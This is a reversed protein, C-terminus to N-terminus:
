LIVEVYKLRLKEVKGAADYVSKQIEQLYGQVQCVDADSVLTEPHSSYRYANLVRQVSVDLNQEDWRKYRYISFLVAASQELRVWLDPDSQRGQRQKLIMQRRLFLGVALLLCAVLGVALVILLIRIIWLLIHSTQVADPADPDLEEVEEEEQNQQSDTSASQKTEQQVGTLESYYGPTVEVPLWGVGDKYIEVWAHANKALVDVHYRGDPSVATDEGDAVYGEVYRAPIDMSRYMMVAKSSYDTTNWSGEKQAQDVLNERVSKTLTVLNGQDATKIQKRTEQKQRDSVQLYYSHVFKRYDEEAIRYEGTERSVDVGQSLWTEKTYSLMADQSLANVQASYTNDEAEASSSGPMNVDQNSDGLKMLDDFTIGYPVYTYKRFASTNQVTIHVETDHVVAGSVQDAMQIYRSLQALPHFHHTQYGKIMGEYKDSYSKGELATWCGNKWVSGTYGKLYLTVPKTMEVKLRVEESDNVKGSVRGQPSDTTGYRSRESRAIAYEKWRSMTANPRFTVNRFYLVSVIGLILGLGLVTWAYVRDDSLKMQSYAFTGVVSIVASAVVLSSISLQFFISGGIVPLWCFLLLVPHQRHIMLGLYLTICACLWAFFVSAGLTVNEYFSSDFYDYALGTVYNYRVLIRNLFDLGGARWASYWVAAVFVAAVLFGGLGMLLRRGRGSLVFLFLSVLLVSLVMPVYTIDPYFSSQVCYMMSGVTVVNLLLPTVKWGVAQKRDEIIHFGSQYQKMQEM